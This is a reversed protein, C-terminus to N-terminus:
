VITILNLPKRRGNGISLFLSMHDKVFRVLFGLCACCKNYLFVDGFIDSLAEDKTDLLCALILPDSNFLYHPMNNSTPSPIATILM